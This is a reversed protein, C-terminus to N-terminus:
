GDRIEELHTRAPGSHQALARGVARRWATREPGTQFLNLHWGFRSSDSASGCSCAGVPAVCALSPSQCSVSVKWPRDVFGGGQGDKIAAPPHSPFPFIGSAAITDGWM